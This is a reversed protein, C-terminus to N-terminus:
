RTTTAVFVGDQRRRGRRGFRTLFLRDYSSKSNPTRPAGTSRVSAFEKARSHRLQTVKPGDLSAGTLDAALPLASAILSLASTRAQSEPRFGNVFSRADHISFLGDMPRSFVPSFVFMARFGARFGACFAARIIGELAGATNSSSLRVLPCSRFNFARRFDTPSFIPVVAKAFHNALWALSGFCVTSLFASCITPARSGSTSAFFSRM